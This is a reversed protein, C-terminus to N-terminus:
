KYIDKRLIYEKVRDPVLYNISRGTKINQRIKTSSIDMLTARKFYISCGSSNIFIDESNGKKFDLGLSEIFSNIEGKQIGPRDIVAFSTLKFLEKYNKWTTIEKFTDIGLIFFLDLDTGYLNKIINITEISYSPGKRRGEIDSAELYSSYSVAIKAMELREPYPTIISEDKHPPQACPILLVKSLSFEECMEEALRLHGFHIPDFTGGLIGLRM